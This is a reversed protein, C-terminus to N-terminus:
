NSVQEIPKHHVLQALGFLVENSRTCAKRIEGSAYSCTLTNQNHIQRNSRFCKRSREKHDVRISRVVNQQPPVLKQWDHLPWAKHNLHQGLSPPLGPYTHGGCLLKEKEMTRRLLISFRIELTTPGSLTLDIAGVILAM